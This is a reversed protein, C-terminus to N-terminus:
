LWLRYPPSIDSELQESRLKWARAIKPDHDVFKGEAYFQGVQNCANSDGLLAARMYLSFAKEENRKVHKGYDYSVALDFLAEPINSKELTKLIRIGAKEDLSVADNGHLYWTALAYTARLDGSGSANILLDHAALLDPSPDRGIALARAYADAIEVSSM